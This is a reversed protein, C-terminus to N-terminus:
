GQLSLSITQPPFKRARVKLLGNTDTTGTLAKDNDAAYRFETGAVPKNEERCIFEIPFEETSYPVIDPVQIETTEVM